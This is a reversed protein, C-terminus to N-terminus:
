ALRRDAECASAEREGSAVEAAYPFNASHRKVNFSLQLRLRYLSRLSCVTFRSDAGAITVGVRAAFTAEQVGAAM